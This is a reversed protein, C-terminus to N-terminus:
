EDYIKAFSANRDRVNQLRVVDEADATYSYDAVVGNYENPKSSFRSQLKRRKVYMGVILVLFIIGGLTGLIVGVPSPKD